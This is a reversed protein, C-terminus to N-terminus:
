AEPELAEYLEDSRMVVFRQGRPSGDRAALAAARSRDAGWFGRLTLIGLLGIRNRVTSWHQRGYFALLDGARVRIVDHYALIGASPGFWYMIVYTGGELASAEDSDQIACILNRRIGEGGIEAEYADHALRREKPELKADAFVFVTQTFREPQALLEDLVSGASTTSPARDRAPMFMPARAARQLDAPGAVTAARWYRRFIRRAGRYAAADEDRRILVGAEELVPPSRGYGLANASANSSAVIAYDPSIYIKAHLRDLVRINRNGPVGLAKLANRSTGGMSVDLVVKASRKAAQAGANPGWFAVACNLEGRDLFIQRIAKALKKGALVKM